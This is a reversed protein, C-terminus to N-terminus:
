RARLQTPYYFPKGEKPLIPTRTRRKRLRQLEARGLQTLANAVSTWHAVRTFELIERVADLRLRTLASVGAATRAGRDLAALVLMTHIWRRGNTDALFCEANKVSLLRSARDAIETTNTAPFDAAAKITSRRRFLPKWENTGSHLIAPANNPVGHEFAILAGAYGYGLPWRHKPPYTRCLAYVAERVAGRFVGSITPCGTLTLVTPRLRNSQVTRIGEEIGSYSVVFFRIFHYSRWSRITAVARFAELMEWVRNGSGIFDTVIVIPGVRQKRLVDPGPNNLANPAHLRCYNTILNALLGESGIDPYKPNFPVPNPGVGVARGRDAGPFLPLIKARESYDDTKVEVKEVVREAYLALPRGESFEGMIRDLLTYIGRKFEDAGILLIEDLLACATNLNSTPFQDLWTQAFASKSLQPMDAADRPELSSAAILSRGVKM